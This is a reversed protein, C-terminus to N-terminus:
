EDYPTEHSARRPLFLAMKASSSMWKQSKAWGNRKGQDRGLQRDAFVLALRPIIRARCCSEGAILTNRNRLRFVGRHRVALCSRGKGDHISNISSAVILQAGNREIQADRRM